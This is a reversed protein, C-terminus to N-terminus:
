WHRVRQRPQLWARGTARPAVAEPVFRIARIRGRFWSVRNQRVGISTRGPGLPRFALPAAAERRGDVYHAMTTGDYVLAAVHWGGLPHAATRDILTVGIGDRRLFTDLCWRGGPLVRLEVLARDDSAAEQVHLFRQEEAGGPMPEFTVEITFREFGAMPNVDLFLGDGRGDFEVAPGLDTRVLRPEGAVRVVHGGITQLSDLIWLTERATATSPRAPTEEPVGSHAADEARRAEGGPRRASAAGELAGIPSGGVLAARGTRCPTGEPVDAVAALCAAALLMSSSRM